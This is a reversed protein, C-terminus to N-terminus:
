QNSAPLINLILRNYRTLAPTGADTVQLIVHFGEVKEVKPLQVEVQASTPDSIVLKLTSSNPENYQLWQYSLKNPRSFWRQTCPQYLEYREGWEGFGPKKPSNLGNTILFMFSPSDGEMIYEVNPYEESLPDDISARTSYFCGDNTDKWIVPSVIYFVNPFNERIWTGSSDQDSITYVRLKNYLKEATERSETRQIKYLARVLCNAGGWVTVWVPRTDAQKLVSIIWDSDESDKGSGVGDLGYGPNGRKVVNFLQNRTPFGPEHKLLNPQVQQYAALVEKIRWDGIKDPQHVSATANLGEVDFQNSCLLFRVLSMPDDPESEIGTLV